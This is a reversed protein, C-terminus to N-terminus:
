RPGQGRRAAKGAEEVAAPGPVAFIYLEVGEPLAEVAQYIEASGMRIGNRNLTSDSRGHIVVSGGDTVTIWDGHRWVGPYMAFYAERYRLGDPDDWFAVPMSPMPETV